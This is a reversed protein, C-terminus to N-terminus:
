NLVKKINFHETNTELTQLALSTLLLTGMSKLLLMIAIDSSTCDHDAQPKIHRFSIRM